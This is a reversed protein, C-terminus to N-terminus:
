QLQRVLDLMGTFDSPAVNASLKQRLSQLRERCSGDGDHCNVLAFLKKPLRMATGDEDSYVMFDDLASFNAVPEETARRPIFRKTLSLKPLINQPRIYALTRKVTALVTKGATPDVDNVTAVAAEEKHVPNSDPETQIRPLAPKKQAGALSGAETQRMTLTLTVLAVAIITAAAVYRLPNKYRILFPVVKAPTAAENLSSELRKWVVLPPEAEYVALRRPYTDDGDLAVAINEWIGEPPPAEYHFLKNQLGDNM